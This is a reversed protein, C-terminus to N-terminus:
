SSNAKMIVYVLLWSWGGLELLGIGLAIWARVMTRPVLSRPARLARIALYIAIPATVVSLTFLLVSVVAIALAMTDYFPRSRTLLDTRKEAANVCAPCLVRSGWEIRCLACVFRGCSDCAAVARKGEHAFCASEGETQIAEGASGARLRFIAPYVLARAEVGCRCEVPEGGAPYPIGALCAHCHTLPSQLKV